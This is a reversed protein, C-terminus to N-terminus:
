PRRCQLIRGAPIAGHELAWIFRKHWFDHKGSEEVEALAKAVRTYTDEITHDVANGHKDKLRYKKDWIDTSAAQLPIDATVNSPQAATGQGFQKIEALSM